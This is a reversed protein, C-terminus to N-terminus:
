ILNIRLWLRNFFIYLIERLVRALTQQAIGYASMRCSRLLGHVALTFAAHYNGSPATPIEPQIDHTESSWTIADLLESPFRTAVVRDTARKEKPHFIELLARRVPQLPIELSLRTRGSARMGRTSCIM